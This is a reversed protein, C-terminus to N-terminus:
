VEVNALMVMAASGFASVAAPNTERSVSMLMKNLPTNCGGVWSGPKQIKMYRTDYTM